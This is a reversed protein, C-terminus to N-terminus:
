TTNAVGNMSFINISYRSHAALDQSNIHGSPNRLTKVNQFFKIVGTDDTHKLSNSNDKGASDKYMCNKTNSFM